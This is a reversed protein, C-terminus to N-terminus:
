LYYKEYYPFHSMKWVGQYSNGGKRVWRYADIQEETFYNRLKPNEASLLFNKAIPFNKGVFLEYVYRSFGEFSLTNLYDARAWWFNGSFFYGCPKCTYDVGCVEHSDLAAVCDRWKAVNFHLMFQRWYKYATESPRRFHSVGKSHLYLIKSGPYAAAIDLAKQISPKELQYVTGGNHVFFNSPLAPMAAPPDGVTVIHVERASRHLGSSQLTRLQEEFIEQWNGMLALHIVVFIQAHPLPQLKNIGKKGEWRGLRIFHELANQNPGMGESYQERYFKPSFHESPQKLEKEGQQIYHILPSATIRTIEPYQNLYYKPCFYENPKRGEKEGHYYYHQVPDMGAAKVDPNQQLYWTKDVLRSRSIIDMRLQDGVMDM